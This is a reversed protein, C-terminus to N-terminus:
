SWSGFKGRRTLPLHDRRPLSKGFCLGSFLLFRCLLQLAMQEWKRIGHISHIHVHDLVSLFYTETAMDMAAQLFKNDQYGGYYANNNPIIEGQPDRVAREHDKEMCAMIIRELKRRTMGMALIETRM